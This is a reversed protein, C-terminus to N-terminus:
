RPAFFVYATLYTSLSFRDMVATCEEYLGEEKLFNAFDSGTHPNNLM